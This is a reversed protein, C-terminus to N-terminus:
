KNTGEALACDDKVPKLQRLLLFSIEVQIAIKTLKKFESDTVEKILLSNVLEKPVDNITGPIIKELKSLLNGIYRSEKRKNSFIVKLSNLKNKIEFIDKITYKHLNFHYIASNFLLVKSLM